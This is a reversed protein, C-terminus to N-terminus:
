TGLIRPNRWLDTEEFSECFLVNSDDYFEEWKTLQDQGEPAGPGKYIIRPVNGNMELLASIMTIRKISQSYFHHCKTNRCTHTAYMVM